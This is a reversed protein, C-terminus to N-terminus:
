KQNPAYKRFVERAAANTDVVVKAVCFTKEQRPMVSSAIAKVRAMGSVVVNLAMIRATSFRIANRRKRWKLWQKNKFKLRNRKAINM